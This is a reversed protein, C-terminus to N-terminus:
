LIVHLGLTQITDHGWLVFFEQRRFLSRILETPKDPRDVRKDPLSFQCTNLLTRAYAIEKLSVKVLKNSPM